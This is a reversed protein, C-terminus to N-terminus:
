EATTTNTELLNNISDIFAPKCYKDVFQKILQLEEESYELEGDSNYIKMALSHAKIGSGVEYIMEGLQQRVDMCIKNTKKIDTYMELQAFDIKM